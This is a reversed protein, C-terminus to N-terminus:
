RQVSYLKICQIEKRTHTHFQDWRQIFFMNTPPHKLVFTSSFTNLKRPPLFPLYKVQLTAPVQSQWSKKEEGLAPLAYTISWQFPSFSARNFHWFMLSSSYSLFLHNPLLTIKSFSTTASRTCFLGGNISGSSQNDHEYFEDYSRTTLWLHLGSREM